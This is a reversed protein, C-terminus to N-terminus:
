MMGAIAGSVVANAILGTAPNVSNAPPAVNPRAIYAMFGSSGEHHIHAGNDGNDLKISPGGIQPIIEITENAMTQTPGFMVSTALNVTSAQNYSLQTPRFLRGLVESLAAKGNVM